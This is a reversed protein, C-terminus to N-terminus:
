PTNGRYDGEKGEVGPGLQLGFVSALERLVRRAARVDRGNAREVRMAEALERLVGIAGPTDLDDNMRKLFRERYPAWDIEAPSGGGPLNVAESLERALGAASDLHARDYHLEARYHHSSLYLRVADAGHSDLLDRVFVMNGLSKSMKEGGLYVMATHVWFRAFPHKGTAGESQAIESEHHPYILDTGGGHIDLPAGLYKLSMTSCELHWGPLGEGWPSAVRPEGARSPRWLLFDLPDRRRPDDPDGGRERTMEIMEARNLKSLEGYAPDTKVSFYVHGDVTYAHGSDTLREVIEIMEPIEASARPYVEARLVNLDRMDAFYRETEKAALTEYSEGIQRAKEFLPDDVDTVNQVYRVTHGLYQLHRIMVDFSVFTFAHGLHTTDYPTVGCVYVKIESGLPEFDRVGASLTDYLRLKQNLTVDM